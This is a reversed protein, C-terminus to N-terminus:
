LKSLSIVGFIFLLLVMIIYFMLNLLLFKIITKARRQQYFKRMAKYEYFFLGFYLFVNLYSIFGWNLYTNIKGLSFMFLLAIFVFIYLHLSFIGHSVYYYQKRRIYLLKLLLALLPLSIFLMQPLSHLLQNLFAIGIGKPDDKFKTELKIEKYTIERELWNDDLGAKLASDYQEKTKFEANIDDSNNFPRSSDAYTKFEARTMPKDVKKEEWNIERTYDAFTTSDMKAVEPLTKKNFQIIQSLDANCSKFFTFFMLFFFASTFIYMRIPNVYSARRGKMYEGSLFGPRLMLYKITSFFKGDFHTIDKFFHSVLEWVSEQPNLNEQGCKHCFRGQVETNCNLCNREQRQKLRSMHM